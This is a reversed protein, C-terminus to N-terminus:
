ADESALHCMEAVPNIHFCNLSVKTERTERQSYIFMKATFRKGKLIYGCLLLPIYFYSSM